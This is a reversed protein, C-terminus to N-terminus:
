MKQVIKISKKRLHRVYLILLTVPFFGLIINELSLFTLTDLHDWTEVKFKWNRFIIYIGFVIPILSMSCFIIDFNPNLNLSLLLQVFGYFVNIWGSFNMISYVRKDIKVILSEAQKTTM